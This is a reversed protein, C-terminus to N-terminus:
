PRVPKSAMRVLEHTTGESDTHTAVIETTLEEAPPLSINALPDSGPHHFIWKQAHRAVSENIQRARTPGSYAIKDSGNTAIALATSPNLPLYAMLAVGLGMSPQNLGPSWLGVPQDSTLLVDEGFQLLRWPRALILPLFLELANKVASTVLYGQPLTIKPPREIMENRFKQVARRGASEGQAALFSRIKDEKLSLQILDPSLLNTAQQVRSRYTWSRTMQLAVFLALTDRDNPPLPFAGALMADIIPVADGEVQSFFAEITEPDIGGRLPHDDELEDPPLEYFGVQNCANNVTSTHPTHPPQRSVATLKENHDAFNRLYMKPVLHHNRGM